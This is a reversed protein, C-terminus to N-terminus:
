ISKFLKETCQKTNVRPGAAVISDVDIKLFEAAWPEMDLEVIANTVASTTKANTTVIVTITTYTTFFFRNRGNPETM